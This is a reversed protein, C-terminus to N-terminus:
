LNSAYAFVCEEEQLADETAEAKSEEAACFAQAEDALKQWNACVIACALLVDAVLAGISM